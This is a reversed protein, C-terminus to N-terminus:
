LWCIIFNANNLDKITSQSTSQVSIKYDKGSLWNTGVFWSYSGKGNSGIPVSNAITGVTAGGKLLVIKVAASGPSGTYSWTVTHRTGKYWIEGGNPSTVTISPTTTGSTSTGSTSTGSTITFYNNSLDQIAPQSTSQIRVKYDTGPTRGSWISYTYSGKGDSGIPVSDITTFPVGGKLFEVKVTSGPNGTYSWTVTNTTGATWTEGGDPSTVTISPTTTRPISTGSTLTFYNNSIDKITPQSTSQVSVKYDSGTTGSSYIPWTYSGKGSSGIPVSDAITSIITGGKVLDIEVTSGPNGTYSWTITKSIGRTWIEGGDPSTVTISPATTTTSISNLTVRAKGSDEDIMLSSEDVAEFDSGHIGAFSSYDLDWRSDETASLGWIAKNGSNDALIMGYKKMAKLIVQQQPTYGSIDVSAKLRFRQGMPPFAMNSIGSDHRAPWIHANQTTWTTVRLAHNIEGSAVEEYRLLGPLVPLGAADATWGDPRLEYTSLDFVAGSGASWTGDANKQADFIQYFYNTDPQVILLSHDESQTEILPNSPIPYPGRDSPYRFTFYKEPTSSDVKNLHYAQYVYLYASAGASKIYTASNKDVPLKDVPVNWIHDKPYIQMGSLSPSTVAQTAPVVLFVLALVLLLRTVSKMAKCNM